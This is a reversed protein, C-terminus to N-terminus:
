KDAYIAPNFVPGSEIIWREESDKAPRPSCEPCRGGQLVAGGCKDCTAIGDGFQWGIEEQVPEIERIGPDLQLGTWKRTKDSM